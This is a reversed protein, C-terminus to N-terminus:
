SHPQEPEDTDHSIRFSSIRAEVTGLRKIRSHMQIPLRLHDRTRWIRVTGEDLEKGDERVTPNLLLTDSYDGESTRIQGGDEALFAIEWIKKGNSVQFDVQDGADMEQLRMFYYSSLYEQVPGSLNRHNETLRTRGRRYNERVRTATMDDWDFTITIEEDQRHSKLRQVLKMPLFTQEDVYSDLQDDLKYFVRVIGTSYTKGRFHFVSRGELEKVGLYEFVVEGAKIGAWRVSYSLREGPQFPLQDPIQFSEPEFGEVPQIGWNESIMMNGPLPVSAMLVISIMMCIKKM